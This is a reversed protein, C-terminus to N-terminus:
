LARCWQKRPCLLLQAADLGDSEDDACGGRPRANWCEFHQRRGRCDTAPRGQGQGLRVDIDSNIQELRWRLQEVGNAANEVRGDSRSRLRSGTM